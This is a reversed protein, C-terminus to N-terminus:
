GDRRHAWFRLWALRPRFTRTGDRHVVIRGADPGDDAKAGMEDHVEAPLEGLAEIYASRWAPDDSGNDHNTKPSM